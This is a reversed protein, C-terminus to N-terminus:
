PNEATKHGSLVSVGQDLRQSIAKGGRVGNDGKARETGNQNARDVRPPRTHMRMKTEQADHNKRPTLDKGTKQMGVGQFGEGRPTLLSRDKKGKESKERNAKIEEPYQVLLSEFALGRV